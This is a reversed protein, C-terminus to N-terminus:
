WDLLRYKLRVAQLCAVSVCTSASCLRLRLRTYVRMSTYAGKNGVTIDAGEATNNTFWTVERGGKAGDTNAFHERAETRMAAIVSAVEKWTTSQTKGIM